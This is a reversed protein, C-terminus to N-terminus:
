QSSGALSFTCDGPLKGVPAEVLDGEGMETEGVGGIDGVARLLALLVDNGAGGGLEGGKKGVAARDEGEDGVRLVERNGGTGAPDVDVVHCSAPHLM